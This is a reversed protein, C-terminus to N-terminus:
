PRTLLVSRGQRQVRAGLSLGLHELVQSVSEHGFTVTLRRDALSSEALHIDVDYWRELEPVADRLLTGKFVLKGRTWSVYPAVDVRTIGLIGSPRLEALDGRGLTFLPTQSGWPRKEGSMTFPQQYLAVVGSAVVVRMGQTEPYVTVLFETGTGAVVGIPTHVVLPSTGDHKVEFYAEGELQVDRPSGKGVSGYSAAMWFHSEPGLTVRSSDPLYLATTQGRGTAVERMEVTGGRCSSFELLSTVVVVVAAEGARWAVTTLPTGM